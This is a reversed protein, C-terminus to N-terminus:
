VAYRYSWDFMGLINRLGKIQGLLQSMLIGDCELNVDKTSEKRLKEGKGKSEIAQPPEQADVDIYRFQVNILTTDIFILKIALIM